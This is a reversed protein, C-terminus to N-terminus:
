ITELFIFDLGPGRGAGPRRIIQVPGVGAGVFPLSLINAGASGNLLYGHYNSM